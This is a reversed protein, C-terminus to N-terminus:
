RTRTRPKPKDAAPEPDLQGVPLMGANEPEEDEDEEDDAGDIMPGAVPSDPSAARRARKEDRMEEVVAPAEVEMRPQAAIKEKRELKLAEEKTYVDFLEPLDPDDDRTMGKLQEAYHESVAYWGRVEEFRLVVPRDDEDRITVMHRLTLNGRKANYPKLRVRMPLDTATTM